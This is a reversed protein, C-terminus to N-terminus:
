EITLSGTMVEECQKSGVCRVRGSIGHSGPDGKSGRAGVNGISGQAGRADCCHRSAYGGPPGGPGGGGGEGGAGGSGGTTRARLPILMADPDGLSSEIAEVIGGALTLTGGNGGVGGKGGPGGRGGVGGSGSDGPGSQCHRPIGGCQGDRGRGGAGGRGGVGGIGGPGGTAGKLDLRLFQGSLGEIEDVYLDFDAASRGPQGREGDYGIHGPTGNAGNKNNAPHPGAQPPVDSRAPRPGPVPLVLASEPPLGILTTTQDVRIRGVEVVLGSGLRYEGGDFVLIADEPLDRIELSGSSPDWTEYLSSFPFEQALLPTVMMFLALSVFFHNRVREKREHKNSSDRSVDEVSLKM